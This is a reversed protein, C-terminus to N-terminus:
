LEADIASQTFCSRYTVSIVEACLRRSLQAVSDM